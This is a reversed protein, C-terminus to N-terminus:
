GQEGGMVVHAMVKADDLTSQISAYEDPQHATHQLTSWVVAPIGARRLVAAVTGGGIGAPKPTVGYVHQIAAGLRLVIDAQPSTPPAAQERQIPKLDIRVSRLQEVEAMRERIRELVKTVPVDPLVRADLYFVDRGPVTNVNEVNAEKKTPQFTSTAPDFLEDREPFDEALKELALILQASATLTNIGAEPTSAHCQKGHVTFKLWMMSKEAVEMLSSDPVGFDPVLILDDEAFLDKHHEVVHKLGFDSGTEEDAVCLLGLNFAPTVGTEKLAEAVLLGSVLGQHNDEVGRGIIRDGEVRLTYPDGTWLQPDGPPVVDLHAIIWLTCATNKGPLVAAFNPRTKEPVREDPCDMERAIQLGAQQCLQMALRAKAWEGQGGNDPGLAPVAVLQAQLAVARESKANLSSFVSDLM